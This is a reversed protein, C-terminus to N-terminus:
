LRVVNNSVLSSEQIHVVTENAILPKRIEPYECLDRMLRLETSSKQHSM